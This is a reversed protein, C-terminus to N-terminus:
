RLRISCLRPAASVRLSSHTLSSLQQAFSLLPRGPGAGIDTPASRQVACSVVVDLDVLFSPTPLAGKATADFISRGIRPDPLPAAQQATIPAKLRASESWCTLEIWQGWPSVLFTSRCVEGRLPFEMPPDQVFRCQSWRAQTFVKEKCYSM